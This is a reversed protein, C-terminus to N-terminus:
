DTVLGFDINDYFIGSNNDNTATSQFGFQLLQGTQESADIELEFSYRVWADNRVATMDLEIQRTVIFGANPDLTQIYALATTPPGIGDVAPAKADFSLRYVGSDGSRLTFEQFVSARIQQGSEQAGRNGYDSYINLYQDGQEDGGEGGAIASFGEGGNPASFPGYTYQFATNSNDYVAAFVRYGNGGITGLADPNAADLGEFNESYNPPNDGDVFEITDWLYTKEGATDGDTGYNFFISLMDYTFVPNIAPSGVVPNAFDFELTEWTDVLTTLAEAEVYNAPNNMDELRLRVPVDADPSYIRVTIVSKENTLPYVITGPDVATGAMASAGLPKMTQAVTNSPNTPDALLMSIPAVPSGFDVFVTDGSEFDTCQLCGTAGDGGTPTGVSDEDLGIDDYYFTWNAEDGEANGLTGNDFIITFAVEDPGTQGTFNFSMEEWGTGGHTVVLEAGSGEHKLTVDVARQSWVKMLMVETNSFDAPIDIVLTTGGFPEDGFKQMRVVTDSPNIADKDPNDFLISAGGNFNQLNYFAGEIEFDVPLGVLIANGETDPNFRVNDWELIVDQGNEFTPLLVVATVDTLILGQAQLREVPIAYSEWVGLEPKGLSREGTGAGDVGDVKYFLDLDNPNRTVRVDFALEGEAYGSLDITEDAPAGIFIVGSANSDSFTAEIVTDHGEEGTDVLEWTVHNGSAGDSYDGAVTDFANIGRGWPEAVEDIFVDFPETASASIGCADPEGCALSINSIQLHARGTPEFTVLNIISAIDPVGGEGTAQNSQLIDSIRLSVRTFQDVPFESLPIEVFGVAPSGSDMKVRLSGSLDTDAGSIVQLDFKIEGGWIGSDEAGEGMGFLTFPAGTADTVSVNGGGTTMVDILTNGDATDMETITLPSETSFALVRDSGTGKFLTQLGDLYLQYSTTFVDAAPVEGVLFPDVPDISGACGQLVNEPQVPPCQYVRVYDVLMQSPFVTASNPPGPLNGGVAMNLIIHQAANFPASEGGELFGTMMGAYYYNWYTDNRVTYFHQGDIFWRIQAQDWEVAYQHFGDTPDVDRNDKSIFQEPPGQMGYHLASSAFPTDGGFSELIDIEGRGPWVGYASPDSGLMWFAAWLGVGPPVKISAEIRGYTIDGNPKGQTRIRGSTYGFQPEPSDGARAELVLNGEVLSINDATYYQLENNGWGPIGEEAGNGTQVDWNAPNLSDGDFEDSWVMEFAATQPLGPNQLEGGEASNGNGNGCGSVALVAAVLLMKLQNQYISLSYM